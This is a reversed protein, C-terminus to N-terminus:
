IRKHTIAYWTYGIPFGVASIVFAVWQVSAYSSTRLADLFETRGCVIALFQAVQELGIVVFFVSCAILQLLSSARKTRRWLIAAGVLLLVAFSLSALDM